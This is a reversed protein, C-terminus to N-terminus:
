TLTISKGGGSLVNPQASSNNSNKNASPPQSKPVFIGDDPIDQFTTALLNEDFDKKNGNKDTQRQQDFITNLEAQNLSGNTSASLFKNKIIDVEEKQLIHDAGAYSDWITGMTSQGVLKDIKALNITQGNALKISIKNSNGGVKDVM